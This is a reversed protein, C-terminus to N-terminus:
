EKAQRSVKYIEKIPLTKKPFTTPMLEIMDKIKSPM